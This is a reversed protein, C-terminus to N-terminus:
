LYDSQHDMPLTLPCVVSTVAYVELVLMPPLFFDLWCFFTHRLNPLPLSGIGEARVIDNGRRDSSAGLRARGQRAAGGGPSTAGLRQAQSASNDSGRKRNALSADVYGHAFRTRRNSGLLRGSTWFRGSRISKIVSFFAPDGTRSRMSSRTFGPQWM